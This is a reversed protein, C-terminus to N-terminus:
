GVEKLKEFVEEANTGKEIFFSSLKFNILVNQASYTKAKLNFLMTELRKLIAELNGKNKLPFVIGLREDDLIFLMDYPRINGDIYSAVYTTISKRDAEPIKGVIQFKIGVCALGEEGAFKLREILRFIRQKVFKAKPIFSEKDILSKYEELEKELLELLYEVEDLERLSEKLLKFAEKIKEIGSNREAEM